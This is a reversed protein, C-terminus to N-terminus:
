KFIFLISGFLGLAAFINKLIARWGTHKYLKSVERLLNLFEEKNIVKLLGDKEM